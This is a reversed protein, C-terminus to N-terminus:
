KDATVLGEFLKNMAPLAELRAVRDQLARYRAPDLPKAGSGFCEALKAKHMGDDMPADTTGPMAEVRCRVAAGRIPIVEVEAPAFKGTLAPDVVVTIREAFARLASDALSDPQLHRIYFGGSFLACAVGYRVSFQAAVEPDAGPLSREGVLRDMEPSIRVVVREIGEAVLQHEAALTRAAEIAAHSCACCPYKKLAMQANHYTRGLDASVSKADGPQYLSFLGFKGEFAQLPATVGEAALLGGMVGSHAAFGAQFRMALTHEVAPQQTGSAQALAIGLANRTADVDLELLRATAAAAGVIGFIATYYWGRHAGQASRGLRCVIDNAAVLATLFAKGDVAEREAIALAAPLVVGDSHVGLYHSDFDLAAAFVGNAFAASVAPLEGGHGWITGEPTGGQGRAVALAASTGRADTGAWAVALTDLMVKKAAAVAAPPLAEYRLSVLHAALEEALLTAM